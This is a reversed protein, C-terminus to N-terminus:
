HVVVQFTATKVPAADKEWPRVYSLAITARGAGVARFPWEESGGAGPMATAPPHYTSGLAKVVASDPPQALQWHYGTSPNSDLVLVFETGVKADVPVGPDHYVATVNM